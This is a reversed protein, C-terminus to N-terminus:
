LTDEPEAKERPHDLVFPRIAQPQEKMGSGWRPCSAPLARQASKHPLLVKCGTPELRGRMESYFSKHCVLSTGNARQFYWRIDSGKLPPRSPEM